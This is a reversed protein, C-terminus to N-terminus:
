SSPSDTNTTGALPVNVTSGTNEAFEEMFGSSVIETDTSFESNRKNRLNSYTTTMFDMTRESDTSLDHGTYDETSAQSELQKLFSNLLNIISDQIKKNLSDLESSPFAVTLSCFVTIVLVRFLM